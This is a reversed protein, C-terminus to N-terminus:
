EVEQGAGQQRSGQSKAVLTLMTTLRSAHEAPFRKDRETQECTMGHRMMTNYNTAAVALAESMPHSAYVSPKVRGRRIM